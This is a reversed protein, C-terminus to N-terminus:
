FFIHIIVVILFFRKIRIESVPHIKNLCRANFMNVTFSQQSTSLICLMCSFGGNHAEYCLGIDRFIMSSLMQTSICAIYSAHCLLIHNPDLNKLLRVITKYHKFEKRSFLLLIKGHLISNQNFRIYKLSMQGVSSSIETAHM